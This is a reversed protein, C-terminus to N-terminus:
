TLFKYFIEKAGVGERKTLKVTTDSKQNTATGSEPDRGLAEVM